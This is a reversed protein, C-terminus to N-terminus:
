ICIIIKPITNLYYVHVIGGQVGRKSIKKSEGRKWPNILGWRQGHGGVVLM